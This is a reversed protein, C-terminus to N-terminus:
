PFSDECLVDALEGIIGSVSVEIDFVLINVEALGEVVHLVELALGPLRETKVNCNNDIYRNLLKWAEEELM